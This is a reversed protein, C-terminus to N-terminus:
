RVLWVDAYWRGLRRAFAYDGVCIDLRNRGLVKSGTDEAEVLGMGSVYFVTGFKWFRRDVAATYGPSVHRGSASILPNADCQAVTPNYATCEFRGLYELV